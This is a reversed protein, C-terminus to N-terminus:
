LGLRGPILAFPLCDGGRNIFGQSRNGVFVPLFVVSGGNVITERERKSKGKSLGLATTTEADPGRLEVCLARGDLTRAPAGM